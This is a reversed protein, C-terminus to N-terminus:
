ICIIDKVSHWSSAIRPDNILVTQPMFFKYRGTSSAKLQVNADAEAGTGSSFQTSIGSLRSLQEGSRAQKPLLPSYKAPRAKPWCLFGQGAYGIKSRDGRARPDRAIKESRALGIELAVIAMPTLYNKVRAVIHAACDFSIAEGIMAHADASPGAM